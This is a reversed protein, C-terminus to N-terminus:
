RLERGYLVEREFGFGWVRIINAVGLMVGKVWGRLGKVVCVVEAMVVSGGLVPMFCSILSIGSTSILLGLPSTGLEPNVVQSDATFFKIM